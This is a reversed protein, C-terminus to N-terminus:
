WDQEWELLALRPDEQAYRVKVPQGRKLQEYRQKDVKAKLRVPGGTTPFDFTVWYTYTYSTGGYDDTHKREKIDRDTILGWATAQQGQWAGRHLLALVFEKIDLGAWVLGVNTAGLGAFGIILVKLDIGETIGAVSLVLLGLGFLAFLVGLIRVVPHREQIRPKPYIRRQVPADGAMKLSDLVQQLDSEAAVALEPHQERLKERQREIQEETQEERQTAVQETASQARQMLGPYEQLIEQHAPARLSETAAERVGSISDSKAAAILSQVIRPSSESLKGLRLAAGQRLMWWNAQQLESLLKEVEPSLAEEEESEGELERVLEELDEPQLEEMTTL